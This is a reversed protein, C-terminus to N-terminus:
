YLQWIYVRTEFRSIYFKGHTFQVSTYVFFLRMSKKAATYPRTEGEGETKGGM